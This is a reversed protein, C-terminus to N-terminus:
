EGRSDNGFLEEMEDPCGTMIVKDDQATSKVNLDTGKSKNTDLQATSKNSTMLSDKLNFTSMQKAECEPTCHFLKHKVDYSQWAGCHECKM